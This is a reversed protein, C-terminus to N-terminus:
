SWKQALRAQGQQKAQAASSAVYRLHIPFAEKGLGKRINVKAGKFDTITLNDLDVEDIGADRTSHAAFTGSFEDTNYFYFDRIDVNDSEM